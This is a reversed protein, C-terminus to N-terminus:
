NKHFALVEFEIWAGTPPDAGDGAGTSEKIGLTHIGGIGLNDHELDLDVLSYFIQEDKDNALTSVICSFLESSASAIAGATANQASLLGTMGDRAARGAESDLAARIEGALDRNGQKSRMIQARIGLYRPLADLSRYVDWSSIPLATRDRVGNWVGQHSIEYPTASLDTTVLVVLYIDSGIDIGRPGGPGAHNDRVFIRNFRVSAGTVQGPAAPALSVDSM